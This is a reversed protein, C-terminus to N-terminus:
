NTTCGYLHFRFNCNRAFDFVRPLHRYRGLQDHDHLLAIQPSTSPKCYQIEWVTANNLIKWVAKSTQLPRLTILQKEECHLFINSHAKSDKHRWTALSSVDFELPTVEMGNVVNWLKSQILLIEIKISWTSYNTAIIPPILYAQSALNNVLSAM